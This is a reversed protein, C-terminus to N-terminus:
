LLRAGCADFAAVDADACPSSAFRLANMTWGLVDRAPAGPARGFRWQPMEALSLPRAPLAPSLTSLRALRSFASM